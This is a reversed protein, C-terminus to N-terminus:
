FEGLVENGGITSASRYVTQDVNESVFRASGDGLLFLGGGEHASRFNSTSHPGGNLSSRCDNLAFFVASTDTVPSKNLSEVTCGFIGGGVLGMAVLADYNSEGIIWGNEARATEGTLTMAPTTCGVGHCVPASTDGEGMAFTNSLGDTVDRFRTARTLDFMGKESAPQKAPYCWADTAGKNFIYHTVAYTDGTPFNLGAPGFLPQVVTDSSPSSPCLFTKIVTQAVAPSQQDWRLESNYLDYLNRQEFYPLLLANANAWGGLFDPPPLPVVIAGPPLTQHVDHYNHLALGFQKLNNRCQTRRAAERAQQVAPLLLAILVAIIAIVVLLEILTFGRRKM